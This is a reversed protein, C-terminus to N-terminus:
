APVLATWEQTRGGTGQRGFRVRRYPIRCASRSLRYESRKEAAPRWGHKVGSWHFDEGDLKLKDKLGAVLQKWLIYSAALAMEVAKRTPQEVQGAIAIRRFLM